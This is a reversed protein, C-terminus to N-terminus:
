RRVIIPHIWVFGLTDLVCPAALICTFHRKNFKSHSYRCTTTLQMLKKRGTFSVTVVFHTLNQIVARTDQEQQIFCLRVTWRHRLDTVPEVVSCYVSALEGGHVTPGKDNGYTTADNSISWYSARNSSQVPDSCWLVTTKKVPETWKYFSGRMRNIILGNHILWVTSKTTLWWRVPILKQHVLPLETDLVRSALSTQVFCLINCHQQALEDVM